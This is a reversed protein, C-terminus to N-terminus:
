WILHGRGQASSRVVTKHLLFLQVQGNMLDQNLIDRMAAERINVVMYVESLHPQRNCDTEAVILACEGPNSSPAPTHVLGCRIGAQSKVIEGYENDFAANQNPFDKTSFFNGIPTKLYATDILPEVLKLQAFTTQLLSLNQYYRGDNHNRVDQMVQTFTDSLMFSYSSVVIHRLHEDM